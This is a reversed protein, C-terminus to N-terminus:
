GSTINTKTQGIIKIKKVKPAIIYFSMVTVFNSNLFNNKSKIKQFLYYTM